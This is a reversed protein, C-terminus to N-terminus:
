QTGSNELGDPSVIRTRAALVDQVEGFREIDGNDFIRGILLKAIAALRDLRDQREVDFAVAAVDVLRACKVAAGEGLRERWAKAETVDHGRLVDDALQNEDLLGGIQM